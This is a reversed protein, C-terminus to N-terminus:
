LVLNIKMIIKNTNHNVSSLFAGTYDGQITNEYYYENTYNFEIDDGSYYFRKTDSHYSHTTKWGVFSSLKNYIDLNNVILNDSHIINSTIKNISADNISVDDAYIYNASVDTVSIDIVDLNNISVDICSLEVVRLKNISADNSSIELVHLNNISVVIASLDIVDLNNISM